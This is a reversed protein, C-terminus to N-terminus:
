PKAAEALEAVSRALGEHTMAFAIQERHRNVEQKATYRRVQAETAGKLIVEFYTLVEGKRKPAGRLMAQNSLEDVEIVKLNDFLPSAGAAIGEAWNRLTVGQAPKGARLALEWVLCGVEGNNEACLNLTWGSKEDHVALTQRDKSEPRWEAVKQVVTNELTMKM